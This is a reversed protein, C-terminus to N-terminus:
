FLCKKQTLYKQQEAKFYVEAHVIKLNINKQVQKAVKLSNLIM